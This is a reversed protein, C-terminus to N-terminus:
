RTPRNWTELATGLADRLPGLWPEYHRWHDVGERNIPRRVQEASPTQVARPNRHFDLCASDFPVGIFQLMRRVERDPDDILRENVVRHVAAPQVREMHDMFRLYDRYFIGIAELSYSFRMGHSYNQKFNSFGCALPHRRAEIIKANPLALRILGLHLWNAPLKDIFFLRDTLRFAKTRDLYEEGIARITASDLSLLEQFPGRDRVAASRGLREWLQQMVSLEATGEIQPHSALIQEILTSGSRHMGVVFIPDRASCGNGEHREFLDAAFAGIASDVLATIRMAEAGFENRRMENGAAYHRFSAAFQARQEYAAGLAFHFHLADTSGPKKRLMRRMTAIDRDGFRYSKFNSLTWWGEGYGPEMEIAKRLLAVAEETRGVTKLADALARLLPTNNRDSQALQEYIAIQRHHDGLTGRCAAEIALLNACERLGAPLAEIEALAAEAGVYRHLHVILAILRAAVPDVGAARRLLITAEEVRDNFIALDALKALASADQPHHLLHRRLLREADDRAGANMAATAQELVLRSTTASPQFGPLQTM